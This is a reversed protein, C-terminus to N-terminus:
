RARAGMECGTNGSRESARLQLAAFQSQLIRRFAPIEAGVPMDLQAANVEPGRSWGM